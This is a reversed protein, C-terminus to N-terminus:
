FLKPGFVWSLRNQIENLILCVKNSHNWKEHHAGQVPTSNDKIILEDDRLALDLNTVALYLKLLKAWDEFITGNLTKVLILQM